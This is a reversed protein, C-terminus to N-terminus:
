FPLQADDDDLEAFDSGPASYGGYEGGGYSNSGYDSNSSGGDKKKSEGFYVNDALIEASRRKNGEKDTWNRIQLRGSVVIMSGQKFYKSVFEGTGGLRLSDREDVLHCSERSILFVEECSLRCLEIHRANKLHGNVRDGGGLLLLEIEVLSVSLQHSTLSYKDNVVNDRGTLAQKGDFLEYVGCAAIDASTHRDKGLAICGLAVIEDVEFLEREKVFVTFRYLWLPQTM